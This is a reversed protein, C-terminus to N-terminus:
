QAPSKPKAAPKKASKKGGAHGNSRQRAKAAKVLESLSGDIMEGLEDLDHMADYDGLLGFDMSGWHFMIAVALSGAKAERRSLQSSATPNM